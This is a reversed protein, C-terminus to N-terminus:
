PFELNNAIWLRNKHILCFKGKPPTWTEDGAPYAGGLAADADSDTLTTTTNDAITGNTLLKYTGGGGVESRYVKRGIIAEGLITDPGIPIMTLDIDNDAVTVTNSAINTIITKTASYFAIKYTYAGNPGAGAGNDKAYCTGLYTAQTGNTKVPYNYGDTGIALITVPFCIPLACTQVGTM